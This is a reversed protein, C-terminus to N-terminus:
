NGIALLGKSSRSGQVPFLQRTYNFAAVQGRSSCFGVMVSTLSCKLLSMEGDRTVQLAMVSSKLDESVGKM